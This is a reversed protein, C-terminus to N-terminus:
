VGGYSEVQRLNRWLLPTRLLSINHLIWFIFYGSSPLSKTCFQTLVGQYLSPGMSLQM